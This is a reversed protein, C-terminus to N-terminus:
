KFLIKKLLESDKGLNKELDDKIAKISVAVNYSDDSYLVKSQARVIGIVEGHANYLAGGSNGGFVTAHFIIDPGRKIMGYGSSAHIGFGQPNGLAISVEKKGYDVHTNFFPAQQKFLSQGRKHDQMEILCYDLDKNCFHVKECRLRKNNQSPNLRISFRRCKTTNKRSVSLVHQNTLILNDGAHVASGFGSSRDGPSAEFVSEALAQTFYFFDKPIIFARGGDEYMQTARRAYPIFSIGRAKINENDKQSYHGFVKYPGYLEKKPNVSKISLISQQAM